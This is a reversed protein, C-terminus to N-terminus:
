FSVTVGGAANVGPMTYGPVGEFRRDFLNDLTPFVSWNMRGPVM